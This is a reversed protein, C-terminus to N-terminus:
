ENPDEIFEISKKSLYIKVSRKEHKDERRSSFLRSFFSM